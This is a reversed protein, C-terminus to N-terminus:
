KEGKMDQWCIKAARCCLEFGRVELMALEQVYQRAFMDDPSESLAVAIASLADEYSFAQDPGPRNDELLKLVFKEIVATSLTKTIFADSIARVAPSAKMLRVQVGPTSAMVSASFEPDLLAWLLGENSTRAREEVELAIAEDKAKEEPTRIDPDVWMQHKESWIMDPRPQKSKDRRDM